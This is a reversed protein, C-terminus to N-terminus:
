LRRDEGTFHLVECMGAIRSSIRSDIMEDIKSLSFNSTIVTKLMREERENVIYYMIQRVFETLKEAGLDDIFLIGNSEKGVIISNYRKHVPFLAIEDAIEYSDKTRYESSNFREDKKFSRQLTMIFRPFSIWKVKWNQKIYEKALSAMFVSKGTGVKGWLFLSKGFSDKLLEKKNTEINHYKIPINLSIQTLIRNRNAEKRYNTECIESCFMAENHNKERRDYEFLKKCYKCFASRMYYQKVCKGKKCIYDIKYPNDTIFEFGEGCIKCIKKGKLRGDSLTLNEREAVRQM